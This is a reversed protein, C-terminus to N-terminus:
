RKETSKIHGRGKGTWRIDIGGQLERGSCRVTVGNGVDGARQQAGDVADLCQGPLQHATM